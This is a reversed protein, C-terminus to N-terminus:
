LSAEELKKRKEDCIQIYERQLRENRRLYHKGSWLHTLLDQKEMLNRYDLLMKVLLGEAEACMGLIRQEAFVMCQMGTDPTNKENRMFRVAETGYRKKFENDRLYVFSTNLPRAHKSWQNPFQYEEKMNFYSFDPYVMGHFDEDHTVIVDKGKVEIPRWVIMDMDLLVCPAEILELAQIKGAAWYKKPYVGYNCDDLLPLIGDYHEDMKQSSMYEAGKSDTILYIPGNYKRWAAASLRATALEFEAMSYTGSSHIVEFPRTWLVHYATLKERRGEGKWPVRQINEMGVAGFFKTGDLFDSFHEM